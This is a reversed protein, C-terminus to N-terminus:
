VTKWQNLNAYDEVPPLPNPNGKMIEIIVPIRFGCQLHNRVKDTLSLYFPRNSRGSGRVVVLSSLSRSSDLSLRRLVIRVLLVLRLNRSCM